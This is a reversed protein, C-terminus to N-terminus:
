IYKKMKEIVNLRAKARTLKIKALEKGQESSNNSLLVSEAREKAKVAREYNINEVWEFTTAAILAKDKSINIFGGICAARRPNQIDEVYVRCEGAGIATVYPIHGARIAIDGDVTRLSIQKADGDFFMGDLSVIQLHFSNM